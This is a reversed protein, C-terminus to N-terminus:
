PVIAVIVIVLVAIAFTQKKDKATKWFMKQNINYHFSFVFQVYM